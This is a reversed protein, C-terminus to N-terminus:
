GRNGDDDRRGAHGHGLVTITGDRRLGAAGVHEFREADPNVQFGLLRRSRQALLLESKKERGLIMRGESVDRRRAFEAGFATLSCNEIKEARQQVGGAGARL